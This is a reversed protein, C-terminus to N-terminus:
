FRPTIVGSMGAMLEPHSGTIAATIKISQSVPDVRAGVRVLQADYSKGTEDIRVAFAAGPKLQPQWASPAIFELQLPGSGIIELLENGQQVFQMERVKQASVRGSFPATVTCKNVLVDTARLEASAREVASAALDLDLKGVANLKELERNAALTKRAASLEAQSRERQARQISCDFILLVQGQRFYGGEPVTIRSVKAAIEAGLTTYRDPVLQARIEPQAESPVAKPGAPQATEPIIPGVTLALPGAEDLSPTSADKVYLVLAGAGLVLLTLALVRGKVRSQAKPTFNDEKAMIM